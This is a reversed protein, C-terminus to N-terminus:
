GLYKALKIKAEEKNEAKVIARGTRFFIIDKFFLCYSTLKTEGLKKLKDNLDNLNIIKTKIHFSSSGCTKVFDNSNKGLLYEFNNNCTPCDKNKKIKIKTLRNKWVDYHVLEKNPQQKTLIKIAETVQMAAISHIITNIIGETDCTGLVEDPEKFICRLCPNKPLINFTM